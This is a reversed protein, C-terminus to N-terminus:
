LPVDSAEIGKLPLLVEHPVEGVRIDSPGSGKAQQSAGVEDDDREAIEQLNGSKRSDWDSRRTFESLGVGHPRVPCASCRIITQGHLAHGRRPDRSCEGQADPEGKNASENPEKRLHDSLTIGCPDDDEGPEAQGRPREQHPPQVSDPVPLGDPDILVRNPNLDPCQPPSAYPGPGTAPYSAITWISERM